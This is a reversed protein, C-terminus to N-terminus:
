QKKKHLDHWAGKFAATEKISVVNANKGKRCIEACLNTARTLDIADTVGETVFFVWALVEPTITTEIKKM